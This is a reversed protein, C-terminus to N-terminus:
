ESADKLLGVLYSLARLDDESIDGAQYLGTKRTIRQLVTMAGALEVSDPTRLGYEVWEDFDIAGVDTDRKARRETEVVGESVEGWRVSLVGDEDWGESADSRYNELSEAAAQAAAERTDHLEFGTEFCYSFFRRV